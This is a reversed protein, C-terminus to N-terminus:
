PASPQLGTVVLLALGSRDLDVPASLLPAANWVPAYAFTGYALLSGLDEDADTGASGEPDMGGPACEEAIAAAFAGHAMTPFCAQMGLVIAGILLTIRMGREFLPAM